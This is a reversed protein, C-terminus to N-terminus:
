ARKAYVGTFESKDYNYTVNYVIDYGDFAALFKMKNITQNKGRLMSYTIIQPKVSPDLDFSGSYSAPYTKVFNMNMYASDYWEKFDNLNKKYCNRCLHPLDNRLIRLHGNQDSDYSAYRASPYEIYKWLADSLSDDYDSMDYITSLIIWVKSLYNFTNNETIEEVVEALGVFNDNEDPYSKSCETCTYEVPKFLDSFFGM